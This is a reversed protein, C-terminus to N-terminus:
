LAAVIRRLDDTAVRRPNNAMREANVDEVWEERAVSDSFSAPLHFGLERAFEDLLSRGANTDPVQLVACVADIAELVAEVGRSDAVDAPSVAGNFELFAGLTLAVAHGHTLGHRATLHYALAHPATTRAIDIAAGAQTAGLALQYRAEANPNLVARELHEWVLELADKSLARSEETSNVSWMSEISHALADFGSAATQSASLSHTFQPDVLAAVPRISESAISYKKTGDYLVAFHTREAGSGATTPIAVIEISHLDDTGERLIDSLSAGSGLSLALLKATDIVSGGGVAVVLAPLTERLSTAARTLVHLKPDPLRVRYHRVAHHSLMQGVVEAAGSSEYSQDGSVLLLADGNPPLWRRLESAAGTGFVLEERSM